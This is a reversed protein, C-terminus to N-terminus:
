PRDTEAAPSETSADANGCPEEVSRVVWTVLDVAPNEGREAQAM